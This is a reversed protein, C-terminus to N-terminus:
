TKRARPRAPGTEVPRAPDASWESWSGPYLRAGRLGAHEMALLNHCATVGSGCYAIADGASVDGLRAEFAVRLADATLLTGDTGVNHRFFHNIAGPDAKDDFKGRVVSVGHTLARYQGFMSWLTFVIGVGLVTLLAYDHWVIGNFTGILDTFTDM